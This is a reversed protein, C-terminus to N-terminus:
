AFTSPCAKSPVPPKVPVPLASFLSSYLPLAGIGEAPLVAIVQEYAFGPIVDRIRPLPDSANM